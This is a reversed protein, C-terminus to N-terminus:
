IKYRGRLDLGYNALDLCNAPALAPAMRSGCQYAGAAVQAGMRERLQRALQQYPHEPSKPDIKVATLKAPSSMTLWAWHNM